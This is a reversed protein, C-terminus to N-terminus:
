RLTLSKPVKPLCVNLTIRTEFKSTALSLGAKGGSKMHKVFLMHINDVTETFLFIIIFCTATIWVCCCLLTKRSGIEM